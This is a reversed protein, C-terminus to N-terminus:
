GAKRMGREAEQLATKLAERDGDALPEGGFSERLYFAIVRATPEAAEPYRSAAEDRVVLPPVSDSLPAGRRGLRRRLRTYAQTATLPPKLKLYLGFVAAAFLTFGVAVSWPIEPMRPGESAPTIQVTPGGPEASPQAPESDKRDFAKWLDNWMQRLGGFIRLQDYLGFTLVYRDWRFVVYDWAQRMLLPLGEQEATPRGAPPTPDFIRWGEGPLWAEVWAHANSDRVIYYGEFPNYEGGLFGTVLRAPIGQSRLMLVMSSAFYECQGSKYRFLFDEIPNASSRGRFDLTYEYDQILRLELRHVRESPAGQGMMQRALNAVRPTVGALDLTPDSPLRSPTDATLVPENLLGVRYEVMEVPNFGFSIAGGEDVILTPTKPEVVITEVPLPVSRSHLPHLFIKAWRAPQRRRDLWFRVGPDRHLVTAVPSKRWTGGQYIDYTAAKFRMERNPNLAGEELLRLAVDRSSRIQGISDLTVEDSFGAAEITQGLGGGRGVIYPSPVRPLFAFLPVALVITLLTCLALFWRLPIRALEPDERGFGALVHLFAFRTLMVLTLVLFTVLYIVITPHVSTGMSALFLFFIGMAAQWKDRERTLSFLKVLLAFLILHLVPPLIRGRSLVLFDLFFLPLYVLGLVNMGWLPLWRPADSAARRLFLIVGLMFALVAPWSVVENFPLPLPALLALFGLLLRKQRAFSM